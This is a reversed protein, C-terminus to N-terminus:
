ETDWNDEGWEGEGAKALVWAQRLTEKIGKGEGAHPMNQDISEIIFNPTTELIATLADLSEFFEVSKFKM